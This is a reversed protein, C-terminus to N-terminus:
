KSDFGRNLAAVAGGFPGQYIGTAVLFAGNARTVVSPAYTRFGHRALALFAQALAAGVEVGEQLRVVIAIQEKGAECAAQNM